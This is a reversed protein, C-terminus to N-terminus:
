TPGGEPTDDTTEADPAGAEPVPDDPEGASDGVRETATAAPVFRVVRGPFM